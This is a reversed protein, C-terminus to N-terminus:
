MVRPATCTHTQIFKLRVNSTGSLRPNIIYSTHQTEATFILSITSHMGRVVSPM